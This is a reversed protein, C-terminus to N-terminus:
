NIGRAGHNRLAAENVAFLDARPSEVEGERMFRFWVHAILCLGKFPLLLGMLEATFLDASSEKM